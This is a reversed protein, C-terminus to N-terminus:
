FGNPARATEFSYNSVGYCDARGGKHPNWYPLSASLCTAYRLGQNRLTGRGAGNGRRSNEKRRRPSMLQWGQGVGGRRNAKKGRVGPPAWGLRRLARQGCEARVRRASWVSRVVNNRPRQHHPMLLREEQGTHQLYHGAMQVTGTRLAVGLLEWRSPPRLPGTPGARSAAGLPLYGPSSNPGTRAM